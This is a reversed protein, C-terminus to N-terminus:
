NHVAYFKETMFCPYYSLKSKKLGELGMDEERNVYKFDQWRNQLFHRNIAPFAGVFSTDAHELHIVAMDDRGLFPEGFSFAVMKEDCKLCGGSIDLSKWNDLLEWVAELEANLGPVSEKKENYWKLYLEKCEEKYDPTMQEYYFNYSSEFRNVFNRKSHYKKGKLQSLAEIEYVYDSNPLDAELRFDNPFLKQLIEFDSKDCIRILFDKGFQSRHYEVAQKYASELDGGDGCVVSFQKKAGELGSMICLCGSLVSYSINYSKRWMFLNTFTHESNGSSDNKLFSNILEKDGLTIKNVLISFM